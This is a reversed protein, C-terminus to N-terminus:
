PRTFGPLTYRHLTVPGGDPDTWNATETHTHQWGTREYLAVAGSRETDVVDLMLDTRRDAAWSRVEQLLRTAVQDRRFAPAVFLRCVEASGRVAVHGVVAAGEDVAVWAHLLDRPCLWRHPDTPWHLPYRDHGHVEALLGTCAQLDDSDRDRIMVLAVRQIM